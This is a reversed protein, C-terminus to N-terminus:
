SLGEYPNRKHMLLKESFLKIYARFMEGEREKGNAARGCVEVVMSELIILLEETIDNGLNSNTFIREHLDLTELLVVVTDSAINQLTAVELGTRKNM